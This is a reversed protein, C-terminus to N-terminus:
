RRVLKSGGLARENEREREVWIVIFWERMLSQGRQNEFEFTNDRKFNLNSAEKRM